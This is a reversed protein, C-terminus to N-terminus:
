RHRGDILSRRMQLACSFSCAIHAVDQLPSDVKTWRVWFQPRLRRKPGGCAECPGRMHPPVGDPWAAVVLSWCGERALVTVLGHDHSEALIDLVTVRWSPSFKSM